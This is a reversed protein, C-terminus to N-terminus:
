RCRVALVVSPKAVGAVPITSLPAGGQALVVSDPTCVVSRPRRQAAVDTRTAKRGRRFTSHVTNRVRGDTKYITNRGMSGTGHTTDRGRLDTNYIPRLVIGPAQASTARRTPLAPRRPRLPGTPLPDTPVQTCKCAKGHPSGSNTPPSM